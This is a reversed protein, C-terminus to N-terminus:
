ILKTEGQVNTQFSLFKTGMMMCDFKFFMRFSKFSSRLMMRKSAMTRNPWLVEKAEGRLFSSILSIYSTALLMEEDGELKVNENAWRTALYFVRRRM